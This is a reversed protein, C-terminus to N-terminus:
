NSNAKKWMRWVDEPCRPDSESKQAHSKSTQVSRDESHEQKKMFREKFLRYESKREEFKKLYEEIQETLEQDSYNRHADLFLYSDPHLFDLRKKKDEFCSEIILPIVDANRIGEIVRYSAYSIDIYYLDYEKRFPFKLYEVSKFIRKLRMVDREPLGFQGLSMESIEM